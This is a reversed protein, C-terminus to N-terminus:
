SKAKRTGIREVDGLIGWLALRYDSTEDRVEIKILITL